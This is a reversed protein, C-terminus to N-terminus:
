HVPRHVSTRGRRWTRWLRSAYGAASRLNVAPVVTSASRAPLTLLAFHAGVTPRNLFKAETGNTTFYLDALANALPDATHAVYAVVGDVFLDRTTNTTAVAAAWIAWDTKAYPLRSDLAVGFPDARTSPM